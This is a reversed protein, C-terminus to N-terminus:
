SLVFLCYLGYDCFSYRQTGLKGCYHTTYKKKQHLRLMKQAIRTIGPKYLKNYVERQGVIKWKGKINSNYM